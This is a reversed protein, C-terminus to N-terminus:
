LLAKMSATNPLVAHARKEVQTFVFISVCDLGPEPALVGLSDAVSPPSGCRFVKIEDSRLKMAPHPVVFVVEAEVLASVENAEDVAVKGEICM